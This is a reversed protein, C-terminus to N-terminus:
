HYNECSKEVTVEVPSIGERKYVELRLFTGRKPQIGGGGRGGRIYEMLIPLVPSSWGLDM